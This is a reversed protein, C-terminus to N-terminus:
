AVHLDDALAVVEDAAGGALLWERPSVPRGDVRLDPKPLTLWRLVAVPHLDAPLAQLVAGLGPIESGDAAFQVRPYRTGSAGALSWLSRDRTRQRIRSVDRGLQEAVVSAPLSDLVLAVYALRTREAPDPVDLPLPSLDAGIAELAARETHSFQTRADAPDPVPVTIEVIERVTRELEEVSVSIGLGAVFRAIVTEDAPTRTQRRTGPRAM